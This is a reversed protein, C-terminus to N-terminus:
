RGVVAHLAKVDKLPVDFVREEPFFERLMLHEPTRGVYEKIIATGDVLEVIVDDGRPPTMDFVFYALERPKFRPYMSEGVVEASGIRSYGRQGPHMPVWRIESGAAVTVREGAGAVYGYVACMGPHTSRERVPEAIGATNARYRQPVANPQGVGADLKSREMILDEVSANVASTLRRQTDPRFIGRAKGTEYKGWGAASEIGFNSAAQPQTLGARQRLSALAQGLLRAEEEDRPSITEMFVVEGPPTRPAIALM